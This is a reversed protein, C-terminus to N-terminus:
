CAHCVGIIPLVHRWTRGKKVADITTPSVNYDGAITNVRENSQLRGRIINIDAETLKSRPHKSGKMRQQTGHRQKDLMNERHTGWRLNEIKNNGPDGDIHLCEHGEPCPGQFAALVLRHVTLYKRKRDKYLIVCMYGRLNPYTARVKSKRVGKRVVSRIRGMSSAQYLGMYSPIDKWVEGHEEM